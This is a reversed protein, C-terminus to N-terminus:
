QCVIKNDNLLKTINEPLMMVQKGLKTKSYTYIYIGYLIKNVVKTSKLQIVNQDTTFEIRNPFNYTM